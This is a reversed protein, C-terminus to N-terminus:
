TTGLWGERRNLRRQRGSSSLGPFSWNPLFLQMDHMSLSNGLLLGDKSLVKRHVGPLNGGLFLSLSSSSDVHFRCGGSCVSFISAMRAFEQLFGFDFFWACIGFLIIRYVIGPLNSPAM